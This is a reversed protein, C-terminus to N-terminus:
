IKSFLKKELYFFPIIFLTTYIASTAAFSLLYTFSGKIDGAFTFLVLWRAAFYLAACILCLALASKLNRNFLYHSILVALFSILSLTITNFGIPTSSVGDLVIGLLTGSVVGTLEGSFMIVAVLLALASFPNASGIKLSAGSYHFIVLIFFLIANILGIIFPKKLSKM